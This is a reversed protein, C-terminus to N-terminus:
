PRHSRKKKYSKLCVPCCFYHEKNHIKFKFHSGKVESGCYECNLTIGIEPGVTSEYEEKITNLVITSDIEGAGLDSIRKIFEQLREMDRVIAKCTLNKEGLTEYIEIIENMEKLAGIKKKDVKMRLILLINKSIADRDIITTFKKIIGGKQLREIRSNVTPRSMNVEKAINMVPTRANEQLIRIIELDTRDYAMDGGKCM